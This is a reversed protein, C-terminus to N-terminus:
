KTYVRIYNGLNQTEIANEQSALNQTEIANEQSALKQTEIANKQSALNQTEVYSTAGHYMIEGFFHEKNKTCITIFYAGNSGYDWTQLRASSIRYKNKFKEMTLLTGSVKKISCYKLVTNLLSAFDQAEVCTIDGNFIFVTTIM